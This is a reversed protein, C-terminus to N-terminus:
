EPAVPYDDDGPVPPNSLPNDPDHKNTDALFKQLEDDSVCDTDIFTKIASNVGAAADVITTGIDTFMSQMEGAVGSWAAAVTSTMAYTAGPYAPANDRFGGSDSGDSGGGGALRSADYFVDAVRPLHVAAVRWLHWLDGGTIPVAM